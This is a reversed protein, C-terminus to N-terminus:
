YLRALPLRRAVLGEVNARAQSIKDEPVYSDRNTYHHRSYRPTLADFPIRMLFPTMDTFNLRLSFAIRCSLTVTAAFNNALAKKERTDNTSLQCTSQVRPYIQGTTAFYVTASILITQLLRPECIIANSVAWEYFTYATNM